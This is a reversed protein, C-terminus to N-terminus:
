KCMVFLSINKNSTSQSGNYFRNNGRCTLVGTDTCHAQFSSTLRLNNSTQSTSNMSLAETHHNLVYTARQHLLEGTPLPNGEIECTLNVADNEFVTVNKEEKM